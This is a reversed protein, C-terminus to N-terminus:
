DVENFTTNRCTDAKRGEARKYHSPSVATARGRWQKGQVSLRILYGIDNYRRDITYSNASRGKFGIYQVKVCWERFQELTITFPINRRKANNKLANFAYKVPDKERAKKSRCTSCLTFPTKNRCFKAACVGPQINQKLTM